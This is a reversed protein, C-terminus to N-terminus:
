NYIERRGEYKKAFLFRGGKPLRVPLQAANGSLPM